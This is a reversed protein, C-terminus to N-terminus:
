VLPKGAEASGTNMELWRTLTDRAEKIDDYMSKGGTRSGPILLKKRAHLIAGTDDNVPFLRNIMYTDVTKTGEPIAKHYKPYKKALDPVEISVNLSKIASPKRSLLGAM